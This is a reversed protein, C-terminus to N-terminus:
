NVRDLPVDESAPEHVRVYENRKDAPATLFLLLMLVFLGLNIYAGADAFPLHLVQAIGSFCMSIVWACKAFDLAVYDKKNFTRVIYIIAIGAAPIILLIDSGQWHMIKFLLGIIYISICIQILRFYNTTFLSSERFILDLAVFQIILIIVSVWNTMGFISDTLITLIGIIGM